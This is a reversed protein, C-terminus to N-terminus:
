LGSDKTSASVAPTAPPSSDPSDDITMSAVPSSPVSALRRSPGSNQIQTPQSAILTRPAM